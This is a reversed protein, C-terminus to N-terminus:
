WLLSSYKQNANKQAEENTHVYLKLTIEVSTHGLKESVTKVDAGQQIMMTAMTHRFKHPHCGEIGYKEGFKRFYATPAQPNIRKGDLHTFVHKPAPLGQGVIVEKQFAKWEKLVEIVKRSVFVDRNKKSKTNTDYTGTGETYQANNVIHIRGSSFDVDAWRIACAEGRRLGGDALIFLMARWMLPESESCKIIKKMEELSFTEVNEEGDNDVPKEVNKMPNFEIIKQDVCWKLFASLTAYHKRVTSIKLDCDELLDDIYDQCDTESLKELKIDGFRELARCMTTKIGTITNIKKKSKTKNIYLEFADSFSLKKAEAAKREQELKAQEIAEAKREEKTKVKGAKCDAEFEFMAKELERMQIKRSWDKWREPLKWTMVYPKLPKGFADSGRSVRIEYGTLEKNKNYKARSSAM